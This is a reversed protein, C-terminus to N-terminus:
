TNTDSSANLKKALRKEIDVFYRNKLECYSCVSTKLGEGCYICRGTNKRAEIPEHLIDHAARPIYLLGIPKTPLALAVILTPLAFLFGFPIFIGYRYGKHAAIITCIICIIAPILLIM